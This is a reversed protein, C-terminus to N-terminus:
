RPPLAKALWVEDPLSATALVLGDVLAIAPMGDYVAPRSLAATRPLGDSWATPDSGFRHLSRERDINGCDSYELAFIFGKSITANSGESNSAKFKFIALSQRFGTLTGCNVAACSSRSEDM